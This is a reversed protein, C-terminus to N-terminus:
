ALTDGNTTPIRTLGRALALAGLVPPRDLITLAVEPRTRALADRLARQLRPQNEIVSGGAVVASSRIGRSLLRDVLRALQEGADAIVGDALASGGDAAAFVEPAHRGWDDPSEAQTLALALEDGDHVSFAAMLREGLDDLPRGEDLSGLVARAADRVLAPASGEDGLIWGWGGSTVLEDRDDRATAISGTGVVVGIAADAGMAPAILESDNVVRVPVTLRLRLADELARCQATNECGHAGVVVAADALAQDFQSRLLGALGAADAEPDGLPGRWSASPVTIDDVVDGSVSGRVLRTKTGGVDVGIFATM